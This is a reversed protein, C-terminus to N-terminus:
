KLLVMKKTQKFEGMQITYLYLGASVPQGANNTANWQISKFGANQQTNVITKVVRGMMDYITINVLADEPLDYRLTTVPNFPNPYNQHLVFSIPTISPNEGNSLADCGIGLAGMNAGDHGTGICPSGEALSFDGSDPDCFQPDFDINGVGWNLVCSTTDFHVSDQGGQVLSYNVNLTACSGDHQLMGLQKPMNEWFISNTISANAQNGVTLGGGDYAFNNVFTCKDVTVEIDGWISLGGAESEGNILNGVNNQFVSNTISGSGTISGGGAYLNASNNNIYLSDAIFDSMIWFAGSGGNSFNDIFSTNTISVFATGWGLSAGGVNGSLATNSVFDCRDISIEAVYNEDTSGANIAGDGISSNEIFQVNFLTLNSKNSNIAGGGQGAYSNKIISHKITLDSYSGCAIAGGWNDSYGNQLTLGIIEIQSGGISFIQQSSDGDVITLDILENQDPEFMFLSGITLQKDGISIYENYLGQYVVITDGDSSLSVANQITGLPLDSSGAGYIDSGDNSVYWLPGEWIYPYECGIEYSGMNTGDNASGVCPSTDAITYDGPFCFQPDENINNEDVWSDYFHESYNVYQFCSHYIELIGQAFVDQNNSGKWNQYFISNNIIVTTLSDRIEIGAGYRGNPVRNGSMTCHNMSITSNGDITFGGGDWYIANNGAILTYDMTISSSDAIYLGGGHSGETENEIIKLNSINSTANRFQIGGANSTTFNNKIILSSLTPGSSICLIGGGEEAVGNQITFGTLITTSDEGNEFTVVSGSNDGDIVTQEIFYNVGFSLYYSGVVINKGNFNINETYTGPAVLVTDRDESADIADQITAYESPVLLTEGPAEGVIIRIRWGTWNNSPDRGYGAITNGDDSVCLARHLDWGEIEEMGLDLLYDRLNVFAGTEETYICAKYFVPTENLYEGVAVNNESLDFVRSVNTFASNAPVGLGTMGEEATWIYGEVNNGTSGACYGGVQTGDQTIVHVEGYDNGVQLSGLLTINGDRDWLCSARNTTQAWGGIVQGDGSVAQAKTSNGGYQGLDVIENEDTWYFASTGCNIWGMGVGTSGDSSIGLGHSYFADCTNGGEINGLFTIEENEVLAAEWNGDSNELEAFIRDNESIGWAEGIGLVQSGTSDSWYVAMGGYNTGVIKEGDSSMGLPTEMDPIAIIEFEYTPQATLITFFLIYVINNVILATRNIM